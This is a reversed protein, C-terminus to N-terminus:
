RKGRRVSESRCFSYNRKVDDGGVGGWGGSGSIRCCCTDAFNQTVLMNEEFVSEDKLDCCPHMCAATPLLATEKM